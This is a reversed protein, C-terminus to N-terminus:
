QKSRPRVSIDGVRRAIEDPTMLGKEVV